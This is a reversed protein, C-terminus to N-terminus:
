LFIDSEKCIRLSCRQQWVIVSKISRSAVGGEGILGNLNGSCWPLRQASFLPVQVATMNCGDSETIGTLAM